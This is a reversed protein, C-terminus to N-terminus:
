NFFLTYSRKTNQILQDVSIYRSERRTEKKDFYILISPVTFIGYKAAIKPHNNVNIFIQKIKPFNIEFSSRIKPMLATCVGCNKGSFYILVADNTQIENELEEINM